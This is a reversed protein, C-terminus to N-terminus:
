KSKKTRFTPGQILFFPPLFSFLLLPYLSLYLCISPSFLSVFPCYIYRFSSFRLCIVHSLFFLSFSHSFFPLEFPSTFLSASFSFQLLSSLLLAPCSYKRGADKQTTAVVVFKASFHRSVALLKSTLKVVSELQQSAHLVCQYSGLELYQRVTQTSSTLFIV